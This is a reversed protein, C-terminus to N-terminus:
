SSICFLNSCYTKSQNKRKHWEIHNSNVQNALSLRKQQQLSYLYVFYEWSLTKRDLSKINKLDGSANQLAAKNFDCKLM